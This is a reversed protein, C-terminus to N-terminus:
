MVENNTVVAGAAVALGRHTVSGFNILNYNLQYTGPAVGTFVYDGSADTVAVAPSGTPGRLEVTVGPLAGGTEDTIRGRVQGGGSQAVAPLVGLLFALFFSFVSFFSLGRSM